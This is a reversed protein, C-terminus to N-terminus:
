RKIWVHNAKAWVYFKKWYEDFEEITKANELGGVINLLQADQDDFWSLVRIGKAIVRRKEQLSIYESQWIESVDLAHLWGSTM